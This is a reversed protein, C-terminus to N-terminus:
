NIIQTYKFRVLRLKLTGYVRQVSFFLSLFPLLHFFVWRSEIKLYTVGFTYIYM